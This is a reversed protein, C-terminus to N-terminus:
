GGADTPPALLDSIRDLGEALEALFVPDASPHPKLKQELQRAIRSVEDFGYSGASGTLQHMLRHLEAVAAPDDAYCSLMERLAELRKPAEALYEARLLAMVDDFGDPPESM